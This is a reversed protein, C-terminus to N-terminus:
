AITIVRYQVYVELTGGGVTWEAAGINHLVLAQNSAGAPTVIADIIPEGNTLQSAAQNLVGQAQITQSVAVGAGNTYKFAMDDGANTVTFAATAYLYQLMAGMFVVVKNAGPAAVITKPTARLALLEGNSVIVKVVKVVDEAIMANLVKGAGITTIGTKAMTVDGSLTAAAPTEGAGQGVVLAGEASIDIEEGDNSTKKGALVKGAALSVMGKVVKKAGITTVGANSVTVDGSPTQTVGKGAAGGIILKGDAVAIDGAEIAADSFSVTSDFKIAKKVEMRDAIDNFSFVRLLRKLANIM